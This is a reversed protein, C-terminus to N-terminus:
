SEDVSTIRVTALDRPPKLLIANVRNRFLDCHASAIEDARDADREAIAEAMGRHDALTRALHAQLSEEEFPASTFCFRVIRLSQTLLRRYSLLLHSNHAAEGIAEHFAHNAESMAVGDKAAAGDEFRVMGARIRELQDPEARLAALRNIARSTLDLAEFFGRLDTVELPMVRASRGVSMLVLGESALRILAERIPTRSTGLTAVLANEELEAGPPFELSLIRKRLDRYIRESTTVRM